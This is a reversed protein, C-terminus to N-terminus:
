DADKQGEWAEQWDGLVSRKFNSIELLDLFDDREVAVAGLSELHPTPMQCDIYDFGHIKAFECLYYFAMKSADRRLTFMSEGFFASGISVGYLGGVLQNDMYIEVSHAFGRQHLLLYTNIMEKTIWSGDQDERPVTSCHRIVAEFNRDFYIDHPKNRLTRRLSRSCKFQKPFLLARPNPSWWLIPDGPNFWPFIGKRYATLVRDPNLDGGYALLGEEMAEKPDPFIHDYGLRPIPPANFM